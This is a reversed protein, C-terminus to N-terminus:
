PCNDGGCLSQGSPLPILVPLPENPLTPNQLKRVAPELGFNLPAPVSIKFREVAYQLTVSETDTRSQDAPARLVMTFKANAFMFYNLVLADQPSVILTIIDPPPVATPPPPPSGEPLPTATPASVLVNKDVFTGVHLVRAAQVIQQVVLRPRQAESPRVLIQVEPLLPNNDLFSGALGLDQVSLTSATSGSGNAGASGATKILAAWQDPTLTQTKEALDVFLLSVLVNVSDGDRIAYAVTSLRTMPLSIAVQGEPIQLAAESGTHSLLSPDEALLSKLVPEGQQLDYRALKGVADNVDLVANPPLLKKPWPGTTVQNALIKEGRGVNQSMIVVQVPADAAEPTPSPVPTPQSLGPISGGGVVFIVLLAGVGLLLVLGLLILLRGRQM